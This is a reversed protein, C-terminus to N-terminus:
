LRHNCSALLECLHNTHKLFLTYKFFPIYKEKSLAVENVSLSHPLTFMIKIHVPWVFFNMQSMKQSMEQIATTYFSAVFDGLHVQVYINM